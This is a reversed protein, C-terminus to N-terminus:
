RGDGPQQHICLQQSAAWSGTEDKTREWLKKWCYTLLSNEPRKRLHRGAPIIFSPGFDLVCEILWWKACSKAKTRVACSHTCAYNKQQSLASLLLAERLGWMLACEVKCSDMWYLVKSAQWTNVVKTFALSVFNFWFSVPSSASPLWNFCCSLEPLLHYPGSHVWVTCTFGPLLAPSM